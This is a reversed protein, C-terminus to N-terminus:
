MKKVSKFIYNDNEKQFTFQYENLQDVYEEIDFKDESSERALEKGERQVSVIRIYPKEMPTWGEYSIYAVREKIIIKNNKEYAETIISQYNSIPGMGGCGGQFSYKGDKYSMSDGFCAGAEISEDTYSVDSGFVNVLEQKMEEQTMETKHENKKRYNYSGLLLKADNPLDEAKIDEKYYTEYYNSWLPMEVKDLLEQIFKEEKLNKRKEKTSSESQSEEEENTTPKDIIDCGALFLCVVLLVSVIMKKKM